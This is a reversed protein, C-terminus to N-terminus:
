CWFFLCAFVSKCLNVQGSTFFCHYTMISALYCDLLHLKCSPVHSWMPAANLAVKEAHQIWCELVCHLWMDRTALGVNADCSHGSIRYVRTAAADIHEKGFYDHHLTFPHAHFKLILIVMIKSKHASVMRKHPFPYQTNDQCPWSELYVPTTADYLCQKIAVM